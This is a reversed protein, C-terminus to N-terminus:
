AFMGIDNLVPSHDVLHLSAGVYCYLSCEQLSMYPHTLAEGESGGAHNEGFSSISSSANILHCHCHYFRHSTRVIERLVDRRERFRVVLVFAATINFRGRAQDTELHTKQIKKREFNFYFEIHALSFLVGSYFFSATSHVSLSIVSNTGGTLTRLKRCYRKDSLLFCPCPRTSV